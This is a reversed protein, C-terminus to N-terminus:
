ACPADPRHLAQLVLCPAREPEGGSEARNLNTLMGFAPPRVKHITATQAAHTIVLGGLGHKDNAPVIGASGKAQMGPSAYLSRPLDRM